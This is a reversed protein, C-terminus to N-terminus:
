YTNLLEKDVTEIEAQYTKFLDLKRAAFARIDAANADTAMRMYQSNAEDNLSDMIRLFTKDFDKRDSSTVEAYLREHDPSMEAPLVVKERRALQKIEKEMDEFHELNKKAMSVVSSSYGTSIAAEALQTALINYSRAEMLFQADALKESDEIKNQNKRLAENYTLSSSCATFLMAIAIVFHINCKRLTYLIKM